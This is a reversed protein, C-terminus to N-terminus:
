PSLKDSLYHSTDTCAQTEGTLEVPLSFVSTLSTIASFDGKAVEALHAHVKYQERTYTIAHM